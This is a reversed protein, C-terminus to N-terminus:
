TGSADSQMFRNDQGWVTIVGENIDIIREDFVIRIKKYWGALKEKKLIDRTKKIGKIIEGLTIVSIFVDDKPLSNIYAVVDQNPTKKSLETLVNPDVL